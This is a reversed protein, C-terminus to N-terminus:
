KQNMATSSNQLFILGQIGRDVLACNQDLIIIWTFRLLHFFYILSLKFLGFLREILNEEVM